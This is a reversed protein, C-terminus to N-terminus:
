RSNPYDKAEQVPQSDLKEEVSQMVKLVERRRIGHKHLVDVIENAVLALVAGDTVQNAM